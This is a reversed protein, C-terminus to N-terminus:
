QLLKLILQPNQNAQAIMAQASQVLVNCKVYDMMNKAADADRIRSESMQLNESTITNSNNTFELRNQYAGFHARVASVKDIAKNISSISNRASMETLSNVHNMGLAATNLEVLGIGIGDNKNASTQIWIERDKAVIVSDFDSVVGENRNQDGKTTVYAFDTANLSIDSGDAIEKIANKVYTDVNFHNTINVSFRAPDTMGPLLNGTSDYYDDKNYLEYKGTVTNKVYMGDADADMTVNIDNKIGSFDYKYELSIGRGDQTSITANINCQSPAKGHEYPEFTASPASDGSERNDLIYMKSGDVAYQTYHNALGGEDIVELLAKSFDQGNLVRGRMTSIDVQLTYDTGNSQINYGYGSSTTKSGGGNVFSISYHASCTKCTSNFGMGELDELGYSTGLGGFDIFATPYTSGVNVTNLSYSGSSVHMNGLITVNQSFYGDATIMGAGVLQAIDTIPNTSGSLASRILLKELYEAYNQATVSLANEANQTSGSYSIVPNGGADKYVLYFKKNVEDYQLTESQLTQNKLDYDRGLAAEEQLTLKNSTWEIEGTLINGLNDTVLTTSDSTKFSSPEIKVGDLGDIVSDLSAENLLKYEFQIGYNNDKYLYTKQESIYDGDSWSSIGMDTWSQLTGVRNGTKDALWIGDESARITFTLDGGNANMYNRLSNTMQINQKGGNGIKTIDVAQAYHGGIYPGTWVVAQVMRDALGHIVDAITNDGEPVSFGITAGYFEFSYNGALVNAPDIANGEEDFVFSWSVTEGDITIGGLGASLNYDRIINPPKRGDECHFTLKGKPTTLSYDGEVFEGTVANIMGPNIASWEYREGRFIVGGFTAQGTSSDYSANFIELDDPSGDTYPTYPSSFLKTGNFDTSRCIRDIEKKLGAIEDNMSKRNEDSYTGNAAQVSLEMTRDLMSQVEVLAGDAVQCLSVGDNVNQIGQTLGTIQARMEESIGLGAANDSAYNIQYGSSLKELIGKQKKNHISYQRDANLAAINHQVVNM